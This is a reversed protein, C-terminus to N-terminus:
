LTTSVRVVRDLITVKGPASLIRRFFPNESLTQQTPYTFSCRCMIERACVAITGVGLNMGPCVRDPGYGFTLLYTGCNGSLLPSQLLRPVFLVFSGKPLLLKKGPVPTDFAYAKPLWRLVFGVPPECRLTERVFQDGGAERLAQQEADSLGAFRRVVLNLADIQNEMSVRLLMLGVFSWQRSTYGGPGVLRAYEQSLVGDPALEGSLAAQELLACAQGLADDAEKLMQHAARVALVNDIARSLELLTDLLAPSLGFLHAMAAIVTGRGITPAIDTDFTAAHRVRLGDLYASAGEGLLREYGLTKLRAADAPYAYTERLRAHKPGAPMVFSLYDNTLEALHPYQYAAGHRLLLKGLAGGFAAMVFQMGRNATGRPALMQLSRPDHEDVTGEQLLTKGVSWDTCIHMPPILFRLPGPVPFVILPFKGEQRWLGEYAQCVQAFESAELHQYGASLPSQALPVTAIQM